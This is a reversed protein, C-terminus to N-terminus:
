IAVRAALACPSSASNAGAHLGVHEASCPILLRGDHQMLRALFDVTPSDAKWWYTAAANLSSEGLESEVQHAWFAPLMLADGARLEVHLVEASGFLPHLKLDPHSVNVLPFNSVYQDSYPGLELLGQSSRVVERKRLIPYYLHLSAVRPQPRVLTFRKTGALQLMMADWLDHHLCSTQPPTAAWFNRSVSAGPPIHLGPPLPPLGFESLTSSPSQSVAVHEGHGHRPLARMFDGFSAADCANSRLVAGYRPDSVIRNFYRNPAYCLAVTSNGWLVDLGELGLRATRKAWPWALGSVVAPMSSRYVRDRWLAEDSRLEEASLRHLRAKPVASARRREAGPEAGPKAGDDGNEVGHRQQQEEEQRPPLPAGDGQADVVASVSSAADASADVHADILALIRVHGRSSALQRARKFAHRAATGPAMNGSQLMRRVLVENGVGCALELPTITAADEFTAALVRAFTGDSTPQDARSDLWGTWGSSEDSLVAYHLASWGAEDLEFLTSANTAVAAAIKANDMSSAAAHLPHASEWADLMTNIGYETEEILAPEPSNPLRQPLHSSLAIFDLVGSHCAYDSSCAGCEIEPSGNLEHCPAHCWPKCEATQAM